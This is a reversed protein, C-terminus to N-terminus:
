TVGLISSLHANLFRGRPDLAQR